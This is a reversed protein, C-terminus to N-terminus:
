GTPLNKKYIKWLSYYLLASVLLTLLTEWSVLQGWPNAISLGSKDYGLQLNGWTDVTALNLGWFFKGIMRFLAASKFVISWSVALLLPGGIGLLLPRGKVYAGVLMLFLALPAMRIAAYIFYSLWGWILAVYSIQESIVKTITNLPEGVILVALRTFLLYDLSLFLALGIVGILGAAIKSGLLLHDNVPLSRYFSTSNDARERYIADSFYFLSLFLVFIFIGQLGLQLGFKIPMVAENLTEDLSEDDTDGSIHIDVSQGNKQIDIRKSDSGNVRMDQITIQGEHELKDHFWISGRTVSVLMLLNLFTIILITGLIVRRWELWERHLLVQLTKM